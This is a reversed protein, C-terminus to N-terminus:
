EMEAVHHITIIDPDGYRKINYLCDLFDVCLALEFYIIKQHEVDSPLLIPILHPTFYHHCLNIRWM